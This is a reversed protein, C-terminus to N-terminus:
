EGCITKMLRHVERLGVDEAALFSRSWAARRGDCVHNLSIAQRVDSGAQWWSMDCLQARKGLALGNRLLTERREGGASSRCVTKNYECVYM